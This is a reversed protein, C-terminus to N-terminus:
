QTNRQNLRMDKLIQDRDRVKENFLRQEEAKAMQADREDAAANQAALQADIAKMQKELNEERLREQEVRLAENEALKEADWKQWWETLFDKRQEFTSDEWTIGTKVVFQYRKPFDAKDLNEGHETQLNVSLQVPDEAHGLDPSISLLLFLIFFPVM